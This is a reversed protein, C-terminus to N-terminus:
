HRAIPPASRTTASLQLPHGFLHGQGWDAGLSRLADAQQPTEVGEAVVWTGLQHAMAVVAGIAAVVEEGPLQAVLQGSLKLVDPRFRAVVELSAWGSGVDDIALRAGRQRIRNIQRAAEGLDSYRNRETAELVLQDPELGLRGARDLTDELAREDFAGEPALVNLFLLGAGLWPGVGGLALSRCLRDLEALWGGRTARDLLSEVDLEREGAQARILAEYGITSGTALDVIPQYRVEYAPSRSPLLEADALRHGWETLTPALLAKTLVDDDDADPPGMVLRVRGRGLEPIGSLARELGARGDGVVLRVVRRDPEVIAGPELIEVTRRTLTPDPSGVLVAAPAHGPLLDEPEGVEPDTVPDAM